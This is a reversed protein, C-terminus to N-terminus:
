GGTHRKRLYLHHMIEGEGQGMFRSLKRYDSFMEEYVPVHNPNPVVVQGTLATMHEVAERYDDYGGRLKGAALSGYIASGLAAAQSSESVRLKRNLIDAYVQLVFPNKKAIGGSVIIEDASCGNEEYLLLIEKTGFATAEVLARYLDEPRTQMSMVVVCGSLSGDVYPTKNGNWWDLALLGSEGPQKEAALRSLLAHISIGEQEAQRHLAPPVCRDTFWGLLDGVAALGSEYGYYGPVIANKVGGLVGSGSFPHSSMGLLVSSTGLVLMMQSPSSAGSGPFGAHSDIIAPAVVTGEQLSLRKAWEPSLLGIAHGMDVIEGPMKRRIVEKLAPSLDAFFDESPYGLERNWWMKYGAMSCSRSRSGTLVRTIWDGAEIFEDATEYVEPDEEITETVKPIMLEPSIRGGFRVDDELGEKALLESIRDAQKQAGHHNWLKVWANRHPRFEERECLPVANSDIPLMTCSTFDVGIAIIDSKEVSSQSVVSSVVSELVEIYDSPDELRWGDPLQGGTPLSGTIVAHPYKKEAEAIIKGDSCSVLVARGSLTGFDVGISYRCTHDRSSIQSM